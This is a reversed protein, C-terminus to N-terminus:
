FDIRFSATLIHDFNEEPRKKIQYQFSLTFNKKPTSNIETGTEYTWGIPETLSLDYPLPDETQRHSLDFSLNLGLNEKIFLSNRIGFEKKSMQFSDSTLFDQGTIKGLAFNIETARPLGFFITMKGKRESLNRTLINRYGQRQSFELGPSVGWNGTFEKELAFSNKTLIQRDAEYLFNRDLYSNYTKNVRLILTPLLYYTLYLGHDQSEYGLEMEGTAKPPSDTLRTQHNLTLSLSLNKPNFFVEGKFGRERAPLIKGTPVFVRIYDGKPHYFYNGTNPDKKYNGKGEEVKIYHVENEEIGKYIIKGELNARLFSLHSIGIKGNGFRQKREEGIQLNRMVEQGLLFSFDFPLIRIRSAGKIQNQKKELLYFNGERKAFRVETWSISIEQGLFTLQLDPQYLRFQASDNKGQELSFGPKLFKITPRLSLNERRIKGAEEIGLTAFFLHLQSFLRYSNRNIKQLLGAALDIKLFSLPFLSGSIQNLAKVSDRKEGWRYVFDREEEELFQYNKLYGNRKLFFAFKEKRWETQCNYALGTNDQDDEASFTNKDEKLWIGQLTLVFSPIPSFTIGPSSLMRKQPLAIRKKPTWTGLGEGVYKYGNIENDYIYEGKGEGVFLFNVEYDGADKGWYVFVGNIKKYTGKNEGVYREGPLFAKTSDDGITALYRKEEETLPSILNNKEDEELSTSFFTQFSPSIEGAGYLSYLTQEYDGTPYLFRVEIRSLSNITVRNTFTIEGSSYDMTYDEEEGRKKREGNLDVEESGPIVAVRKGEATLIYPGRKSDEGFFRAVGFKNKPKLYALLFKRREPSSELRIGQGKRRVQGFNGFSSSNEFDGFILRHPSRNLLLSLGELEKLEWTKEESIEPLSKDQLFLEIDVGASKGSVKLDTAQEFSLGENSYNFGILKSGRFFLEEEPIFIATSDKRPSEQGTEREKTKEETKSQYRSYNPKLIRFPFRRYLIRIKKEPPLSDSFYIEGNEYDVTYYIKPLISDGVFIFLSDPCIFNDKLKISRVANPLSDILYEESWGFSFCIFYLLCFIFCFLTKIKKNKM